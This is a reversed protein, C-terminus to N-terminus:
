LMNKNIMLPKKNVNKLKKEINHWSNVKQARENRNM